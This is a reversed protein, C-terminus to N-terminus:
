FFSGVSVYFLVTKDADVTTGFATTENMVPIKVGFGLPVYQLLNQTNWEVWVDATTLGNMDFDNEDMNFYVVKVNTRVNENLLCPMSTGFMLNYANGLVEKDNLTYAALAHFRFGGGVEKAFNHSLTYAAKGTGLAKDEDGTTTKYRLTTLNLGSASEYNGFHYNAGVSIDGMGRQTEAFDSKVQVFPFNVELGVNDTINYGLPVNVISVDGNYIYQASAMATHTGLAFDTRTNSVTIDNVTTQEAVVAIDTNDSSFHLSSGFLATSGLLATLVIKKM